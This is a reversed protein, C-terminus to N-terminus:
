GLAARGVGQGLPPGGATWSVLPEPRAACTVDASSAVPDPTAQPGAPPSAELIPSAAPTASEAEGLGVLRSDVIRGSADGLELRLKFQGGRNPQPIWVQGPIPATPGSAVFIGDPWGAVEAFPWREAPGRVPGGTVSDLLTWRLYRPSEGAGHIEVEIDIVWGLQAHEGPSYPAGRADTGGSGCPLAGREELLAELSVPAPRVAVSTIRSDPDDGLFRTWFAGVFLIALASLVAIGPRMRVPPAAPPGGAWPGAAVDGDGPGPGGKSPTRDKAYQPSSAASSMATRGTLNRPGRPRLRGWDGPLALLSPLPPLRQAGGRRDTATGFAARLRSSTLRM